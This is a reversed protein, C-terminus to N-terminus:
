AIADYYSAIHKWIDKSIADASQNGDVVLIQEQDALQDILDLYRKRVATLNNKTEYLESHFRSKEMRKLSTEPDIDIFIYCDPRLLHAAQSNLQKLWDLSVQVSQYAYNSLM